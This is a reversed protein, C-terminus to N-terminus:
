HRRADRPLTRPTRRPTAARAAYRQIAVDLLTRPPLFAAARRAQRRSDLAIDLLM